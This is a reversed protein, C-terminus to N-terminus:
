LMSLVKQYCASEFQNVINIFDIDININDTNFDSDSDTLLILKQILKM